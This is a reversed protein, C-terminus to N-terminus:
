KKKRKTLEMQLAEEFTVPPNDQILEEPKMGMERSTTAAEKLAVRVGPIKGLLGSQEVLWRRTEEDMLAQSTRLNGRAEKALQEDTPKGPVLEASMLQGPIETHGFRSRNDPRQPLRIKYEGGKKAQPVDISHQLEHAIINPASKKELTIVHTAPDYQGAAGAQKLLEPNIDVEPSTGPEMTLKKKLIDMVIQQYSKKKDPM